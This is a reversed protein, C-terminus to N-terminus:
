EQPGRMRIAPPQDTKITYDSPVEFLMKSPEGRRLNTLKYTSEGSMPNINRTMVVTQLEPSFWRESVVEIPRENGIQGAPITTTTRTGEAIVGEINQKGLAETKTNPDEVGPTRIAIAPVAM